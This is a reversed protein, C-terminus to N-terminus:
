TQKGSFRERSFFSLGESVRSRYGERRVQQILQPYVHVLFKLRYQNNKVLIKDQTLMCYRNGRFVSKVFSGSCSLRNLLQAVPQVFPIQNRTLALSKEEVYRGSWSQSVALRRYLSYRTSNGRPYHPRSTFSVVEMLDFSNM